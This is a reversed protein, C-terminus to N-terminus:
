DRCVGSHSVGGDVRTKRRACRAVGGSVPADILLVGHQALAGSLEITTRVGTTSLDVVTRVAKGTILGSVGHRRGHAHSRESPNEALNM